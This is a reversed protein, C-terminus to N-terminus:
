LNLSKLIKVISTYARKNTGTRYDEIFNSWLNSLLEEMSIYIGESSRIEDLIVKGKQAERKSMKISVRKYPLSSSNQSKEIYEVGNFVLKIVSDTSKKNKKSSAERLIRKPTPNKVAYKVFDNYLLAVFEDLGFSENVEEEIYLCMLETRALVDKPISIEFEEFNNFADILKCFLSKRYRITSEM